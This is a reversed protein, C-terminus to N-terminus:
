ESIKDLKRASNSKKMWENFVQAFFEPSQMDMRFYLAPEILELEMLAFDDQADRILDVRAYLPTPKILELVKQGTQLLRPTPKVSQIIGGHEEQVRFDKKKPTKLITHSYAGGFYFVSFEGEGVVNTMFPQVMFPRQRFIKQLMALSKIAEPLRYTHEATASIIPKIILEATKFREQWSKIRKEAILNEDPNEIWITPVIKVNQQELDRLYTKQLNWRVIELSNELRATSQDIKQLTQLFAEAASQYDWPTRIIVAEFKNWDVTQDRWSVTKVEWGLQKLPEIALEDDSVYSGMNDMSLFCCKRMIAKVSVSSQSSRLRSAQLRKSFALLRQM